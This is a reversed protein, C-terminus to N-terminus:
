KPYAVPTASDDNHQVACPGKCRDIDCRTHWHHTADGSAYCVSEEIPKGCVCCLTTQIIPRTLAACGHPAASHAKTEGTKVSMKAMVRKIREAEQPGQRSM